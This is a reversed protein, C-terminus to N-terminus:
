RGHLWLRSALHPGLCRGPADAPGGAQADKLPEDLTPRMWSLPPSSVQEARDIQRRDADRHDDNAIM